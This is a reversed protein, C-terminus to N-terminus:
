FFCAGAAAGAGVATQHVIVVRANGVGGTAPDGRCARGAVVAVHHTVEVLVRDVGREAVGRRLAVVSQVPQGRASGGAARGVVQAEAVVGVAVHGAHGVPLGVPRAGVQGEIGGGVPNGTGTVPVIQRPIFYQGGRM